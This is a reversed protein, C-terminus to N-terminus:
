YDRPIEQWDTQSGFCLVCFLAVSVFNEQLYSFNFKLSSVKKAATSPCMSTHKRRNNPFEKVVEQMAYVLALILATSLYNNTGKYM